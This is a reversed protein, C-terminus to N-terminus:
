CRPHSADCGFMKVTGSLALNGHVTLGMFATERGNDFSGAKTYLGNSYDDRATDGQTATGSGSPMALYGPVKTAGSENTTDDIQVALGNFGFNRLLVPKTPTLTLMIAAKITDVNSDNKYTLDSGDLGIQQFNLYGQIGKFVLWSKYGAGTTTASGNTLATVDRNNPSIGLRCNKLPTGTGGCTFAGTSADQNLQMIVSIDAGGQGSIAQLTDNDLPTLDAHAPATLAASLLMGAFAPVVFVKQQMSELINM